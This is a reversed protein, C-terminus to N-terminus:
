SVATDAKLLLLFRLKLGSVERLLFVALRFTPNCALGPDGLHGELRGGRTATGGLALIDLLSERTQKLCWRPRGNEHPLLKSHVKQAGGRMTMQMM